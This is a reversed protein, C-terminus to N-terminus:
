PRLKVTPSAFYARRAANWRWLLQDITVRAAGRLTQCDGRYNMSTAKVFGLIRDHDGFDPAVSVALDTNHGKTVRTQADCITEYDGGFSAILSLKDKSVLVLTIKDGGSGAGTHLNDVQALAADDSLRVGFNEDFGTTMDKQANVVDLLKGHVDFLALPASCHNDMSVGALIRTQGDVTIDATNIYEISNGACRNDSFPDGDIPRMKVIGQAVYRPYKRPEGDKAPEAALDPFVQALADAWTKDSFGKQSLDFVEAREVALAPAGTALLAFFAAFRFWAVM